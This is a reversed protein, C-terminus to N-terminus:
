LRTRGFQRKRDLKGVLINHVNRVESMREVWWVWKTMRSRMIKMIDSSSYLNHLEENLLKRWEATVEETKPGFLRGLIM